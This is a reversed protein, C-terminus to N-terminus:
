SEQYVQTVLYAIVDQAYRCVDDDGDFNRQLEERCEALPLSFLPVVKDALEQFYRCVQKEGRIFFLAQIRNSFLPFQKSALIANDEEITTEYLGLQTTMLNRLYQLARIENEFSIPPSSHAPSKRKMTTFEDETAVILRAFSFGERTNPDSHSCSLRADMTYIGSEHLYARKDYFLQGDSPALQFDIMVENPNRGDEETNDEVAFGYNLLFRHNCKKGYSDYVQAGTTITGLSTITFSDISQDFTWSTERPRYHNLMDAFPVLAATKVGHVTLGFNRSCVIMRAWSFRELSFRAFSPDVQLCVVAYTPSSARLAM